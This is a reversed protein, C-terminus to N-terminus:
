KSYRLCDDKLYQKTIKGCITPYKLEKAYEYYCNEKMDKSLKNDLNIKECLSLDPMTKALLIYCNEKNYQQSIQDCLNPNKTNYAISNYCIDKDYASLNACLSSDSRTVASCYNRDSEDQINNCIDPNQVTEAIEKYCQNQTITDGEIRDCFAPNRQHRAFNLLCLAKNYQSFYDCIFGDESYDIFSEYCENKYYSTEINGCLSLDKKFLAYKYLCRSIKVSSSLKECITSNQEKVAENSYFNVDFGSSKILSFVISFIVVLQILAAILYFARPSIKRFIKLFTIISLIISILLYIVPLVFVIFLIILFFPGPDTPKGTDLASWIRFSCLNLLFFALPTLIFWLYKKKM